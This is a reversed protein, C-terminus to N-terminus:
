KSEDQENFLQKAADPRALSVESATATSIKAEPTKPIGTIEALTAPKVPAMDSKGLFQEDAHVTAQEKAEPTKPIGTIEALTAPKVPAMDSKGLFQEDAHLVAQEKAKPTKPIGTIEALTAPQVPAMDSKGLFVKTPTRSTAPGTNAASIKAHDVGNPLNPNQAYAEVGMSSALLAIFAVWKKLFAKYKSPVKEKNPDTESAQFSAAQEMDRGTEM